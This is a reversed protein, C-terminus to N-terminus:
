TGKLYYTVNKTVNKSAGERGEASEPAMAGREVSREVAASGARGAGHAWAPPAAPPPPRVQAVGYADIGNDYNRGNFSQDGAPYGM